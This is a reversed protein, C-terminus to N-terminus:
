FVQEGGVPGSRCVQCVYRISVPQRAQGNYAHNAGEQAMHILM